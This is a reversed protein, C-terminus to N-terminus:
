WSLRWGWDLPSGRLRQLRWGQRARRGDIPTSLQTNLTSLQTDLTSLQTNLTVLTTHKGGGVWQGAVLKHEANCQAVKRSGPGGRVSGRRVVRPVLGQQCADAATVSASIVGCGLVINVGEGLVINVQETDPSAECVGSLVAGPIPVLGVTGQWTTVM